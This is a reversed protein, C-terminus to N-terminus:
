WGPRYVLAVETFGTRPGAVPMTEVEVALVDGSGPWSSPGSRYERLSCRWATGSCGM